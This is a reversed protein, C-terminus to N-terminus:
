GANRADEVEQQRLPTRDIFHTIERVDWPAPKRMAVAGDKDLIVLMFGRPRLRLRLASPNAPDTDTIIIVDRASLDPLGAMILQLQRTYQPDSPTEALVIVARAQWILTDLDVEAGTFIRGRDAQWLALADPAIGTEPASDPTTQAALPQALLAAAILALTNRRTLM